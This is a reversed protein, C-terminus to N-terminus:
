APSRQTEAAARPIFRDTALQYGCAVMLVSFMWLAGSPTTPLLTVSAVIASPFIAVFGIALWRPMYKRRLASIGVWMSGAMVFNMGMMHVAYATNALPNTGPTPTTLGNQHWTWTHVADGVIVMGLGVFVLMLGKSQIKGRDDRLRDAVAGFGLLMFALAVTYASGYAMWLDKPDAFSSFDALARRAAEVWLPQPIVAWGTMYKITVMVPALLLGM